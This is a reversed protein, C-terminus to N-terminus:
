GGAGPGARSRFTTALGFLAFIVAGVGAVPRCATCQVGGPTIIYIGVFLMWLWAVLHVYRKM